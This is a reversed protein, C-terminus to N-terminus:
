DHKLVGLFSILAILSPLCYSKSSSEEEIQAEPLQTQESNKYPVEIEITFENCFDKDNGRVEIPIIYKFGEKLISNNIKYNFYQEQHPALLVLREDNLEFEKPINFIYSLFVFKNNSNTLNVKIVHETKDFNCWGIVPSEISKNSYITEVKIEFDIKINTFAKVYEKISSHDQGYAVIIHNNSLTGVELFTPDVALWGYNPINVEAWAHNSLITENDSVIGGLVYRTELGVARTFAIFLHSYEVCVGKKINYAEEASLFKEKYSINYTITSYVYETINRITSLISNSDALSAAKEAMAPTTKTLNTSPLQKLNFKADNQVKQDYHVVVQAIIKLEGKEKITGNYLVKIVEDDNKNLIIGPSKNIITVKQYSTDAIFYSILEIEGIAGSGKNEFSWTKEIIYSAPGYFYSSFVLNSIFIFLFILIRLHM